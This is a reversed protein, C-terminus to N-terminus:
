LLNDRGALLEAGIDDRDAAEVTRDENALEVVDVDLEEDVVLETGREFFLAAVSGSNVARAFSIRANYAACDRRRPERGHCAGSSACPKTPSTPSKIFSTM